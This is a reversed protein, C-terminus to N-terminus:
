ETWEMRRTRADTDEPELWFFDHHRQSLLEWGDGGLNSSQGTEWVPMLTLFLSIDVLTAKWICNGFPLM